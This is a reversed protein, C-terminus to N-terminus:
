SSAGADAPKQDDFNATAGRLPPTAIKRSPTTTGHGIM